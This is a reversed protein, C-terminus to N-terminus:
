IEGAYVYWYSGSIGNDPYQYRYTSTPSDVYSGLTYGGPYYTTVKTEPVLIGNRYSRVGTYIFPYTYEPGFFTDLQSTSFSKSWYVERYNSMMPINENYPDSTLSSSTYLRDESSSFSLGYGSGTPFSNGSWSDATYTYTYRNWKYTYVVTSSYPYIQKRTGSINAYASSISKRTGGVNGYLSTM